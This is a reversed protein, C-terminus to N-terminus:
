AASSSSSSTSSVARAPKAPTLKAARFALGWRGDREWTSAILDEVEVFEGSAVKPESDVTVTVAERMHDDGIPVVALQWLLAGTRTDVRQRGEEDKKEAPDQVVVFQVGETAVRVRM